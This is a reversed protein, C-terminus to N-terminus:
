FEIKETLLKKEAETLFYTIHPYKETEAIRLQKKGNLSLIEGLGGAIIEDSFIIQHPLSNDYKVMTIYSLNNFEDNESFKKALQKARDARFNLFVM